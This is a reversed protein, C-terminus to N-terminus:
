KMTPHRVTANSPHRESLSKRLQSSPSVLNSCTDTCLLAKLSYSDLGNGVRDVMPQHELPVERSGCVAVTRANQSGIENHHFPSQDWNEMEPDYGFVALCLARVRALNLWWIILREELIAKSVKFKRNPARMSLGYEVEWRKLWKWDIAMGVRRQGSMFSIRLYEQLLQKAKDKLVAVPFRGIAKFRGCSRLSSNYKRWDISYRMSVFWEFLGERVFNCQALKGGGFRRKRSQPLRGGYVIRKQRSGSLIPVKGARSWARHWRRVSKEPHIWRKCCCELRLDVFAKVQGRPMRETSPIGCSRLYGEFAEAVANRSSLSKPDVKIKRSLPAHNLTCARGRYSLVQEKLSWDPLSQLLGHIIGNDVVGTAWKLAEVTEVAEEDTNVSTTKPQPMSASAESDRLQPVIEAVASTEGGSRFGAVASSGGGSRIREVDEMPLAGCDALLQHMWLCDHRDLLYEAIQGRLEDRCSANSPLGLMRCATDVGCDGDMATSLLVVGLRGYFAEISDGECQLSTTMKHCAVFHWCDALPQDESVPLLEARGSPLSRMCCVLGDVACAAVASTLAWPAFKELLNIRQSGEWMVPQCNKCIGLLVFFTYGVYSRPNRIRRSLELIFQFVKHESEAFLTQEAVAACNRRLQPRSPSMAVATPIHGSRLPVASPVEPECIPEAAVIDQLPVSSPVEPGFIAEASDVEQVHIPLPMMGYKSPPWKARCPDHGCKHVRRCADDRVDGESSRLVRAWGTIGGANRTVKGHRTDWRFKYLHGEETKGYWADDASMRLQPCGGSRSM